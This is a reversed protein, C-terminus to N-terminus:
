TTSALGCARALLSITSSGPRTFGCRAFGPKSTARALAAGTLESLSAGNNYLVYAFARTDPIGAARELDAALTLDLNDLYRWGEEVWGESRWVEATYVADLEIPGAVADQAALPAAVTLLAACLAVRLKM